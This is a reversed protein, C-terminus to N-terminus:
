IQGFPLPPHDPMISLGFHTELVAPLEEWSVDRRESRGNSVVNLSLNFMSARGDETFRNLMLFNRFASGPNFNTYFNSMDFDAPIAPIDDFGLMDEFGAERLIQVSYQVQTGRVIRYTDGHVPQELGLELKLPELFCDGGFGVDCVWRQGNTEALNMRHSHAGFGAPGVACRALVGYIPIGMQKVAECFLGNMEFCYGGRLGAVMKKELDEPVLSITKGNYVDLAEFPIHFLHCRHLRRLREEDSGGDTYGIRTFYAQLDMISEM